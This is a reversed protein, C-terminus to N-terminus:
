DRQGQKKETQRDTEVMEREVRGRKGEIQERHSRYRQRQTDTERKACFIFVLPNFDQMTKHCVASRLYVDRKKKKKKKSSPPRFLLDLCVKHM